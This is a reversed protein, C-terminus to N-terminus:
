PIRGRSESAFLILAILVVWTMAVALFLAGQVMPLQGLVIARLTVLFDVLNAVMLTLILGTQKHPNIAAVIGAVGLSLMFTGALSFVLSLENTMVTPLGAIVLWSIPYFIASLGCVWFYITVSWLITSIWRRDINTTTIM